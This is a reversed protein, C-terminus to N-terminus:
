LLEFTVERHLVRYQRLQVLRGTPPVRKVEVSFGLQDWLLRTIVVAAVVCQIVVIIMTPATNTCSERTVTTYNGQTDAKDAIQTEYATSLNNYNHKRYCEIM